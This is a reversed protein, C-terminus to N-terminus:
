GNWTRSCLPSDGSHAQCAEDTVALHCIIKALNMTLHSLEEQPM